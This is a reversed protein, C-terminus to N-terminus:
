QDVGAFPPIQTGVKIIMNEPLYHDRSLVERKIEQGEARVVRVMTIVYGPKGRQDIVSEGLYLSQDQQKIIAPAVNEQGISIIEVSQKIHHKGLIGVVLKNDAVEAMIVLPDPTNNIFRFDLGNFAVTADRGLPVYSLPKSHNYREIIDLNALLVANYLTSSLQCVGGGIGPVFEGDVIELAEKFGYHKERPGVVKNFSFIKGPYLIYGNIKGAAVKINTTRNADNQNVITTYNSILERIGTNAIHDKTISPYIATVPLAISDRESRVLAHLVLPRLADSNLICGQQFVKKRSNNGSLDIGELMVGKYINSDYLPTISSLLSLLIIGLACIATM